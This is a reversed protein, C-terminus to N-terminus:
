QQIEKLPAVFISRGHTGIVLENEREQVTIDYVPIAHPLGTKWLQWKKGGDKSVYLGGDTGAYLVNEKKPDEHIV